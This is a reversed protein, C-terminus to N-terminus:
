SVKKQPRWGTPTNRRWDMNATIGATPPSSDPKGDRLWVSVRAHVDMDSTGLWLTRTAAEWLVTKPLLEVLRDVKAQLGEQPYVQIGLARSEVIMDGGEKSITM